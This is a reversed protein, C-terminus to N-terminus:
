KFELPRIARPVAKLAETLTRENMAAVLLVMGKKPHKGILYVAEDERNCCFFTEDFHRSALKAKAQGDYRGIGELENLKLSVLRKRSSKGIIKDIDLDQNVVIYEYEISLRKSLKGAGYMVGFILLILFGILASYTFSLLVLIYVLLFAGGWILGLLAYDKATRRIKILQECFSDM